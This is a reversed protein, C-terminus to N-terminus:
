AAVAGSDCFSLANRPDFTARTSSCPLILPWGAADFVTAGETSVVLGAGLLVTASFVGGAGLAFVATPVLPLVEVRVSGRVALLRGSISSSLANNMRLPITTRM